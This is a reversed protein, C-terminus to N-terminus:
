DNFGRGFTVNWERSQDMGQPVLASAVTIEQHLSCAYLTPFFEKLSHESCWRDHWLSVRDGLGVEFGIHASFVEWGMRIHKWLSCDYSGKPNDTTWGGKEVGYKAVV